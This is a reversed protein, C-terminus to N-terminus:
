GAFTDGAEIEREEDRRWSLSEDVESKEEDPVDARALTSENEAEAIEDVERLLPEGDGPITM